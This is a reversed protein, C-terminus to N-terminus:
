SDQLEPVPIPLRAVQCNTKFFLENTSYAAPKPLSSCFQV